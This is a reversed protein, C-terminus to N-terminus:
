KLTTNIASILCLAITINPYQLPKENSSPVKRITSNRKFSTYAMVKAKPAKFDYFPTGRTIAKNGYKFFLRLSLIDRHYVTVNRFFPTDCNM